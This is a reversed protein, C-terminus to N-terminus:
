KSTKAILEGLTVDGFANKWDEEFMAVSRDTTLHELLKYMVDASVTAAGAGTLAVSLVQRVTKFSAALVQTDTKAADFIAQIDAVIAVGDECINELRSVYPAVYAAGALSAIMAQSSSLVATTTILYGKSSLFKTAKIGEDTAPIKIYTNKGLLGVIAEAEAIMGDFKTETLQVHFEKFPGIIERIKKLLEVVDGGETALITPNTTVGAIPYYENFYRIDDLNATDLILKM